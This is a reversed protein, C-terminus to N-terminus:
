NQWIIDAKKVAEHEKRLARAVDGLPTTYSKPAVEWLPREGQAYVVNSRELLNQEQSMNQQMAHNPHSFFSVMQPENVFPTIAVSNQGFSLTASLFCLLFLTTKM